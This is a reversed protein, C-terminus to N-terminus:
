LPLAPKLQDAAIRWACQRGIDQRGRFQDGGDISDADDAVGPIDEAIICFRQDCIKGEGGFAALRLSDRGRYLDDIGFLDKDFFSGTKLVTQEISGCARYIDAPASLDHFARQDPTGKGGTFARGDLHSRLDIASGREAGIARGSSLYLVSDEKTIGVFPM